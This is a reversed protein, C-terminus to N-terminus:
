RDGPLSGSYGFCRGVPGSSSSTVSVGPTIADAESRAASTTLSMDSRGVMPITLASASAAALANASDGWSWAPRQRARRPPAQIALEGCVNDPAAGIAREDVAVVLEMWDWARKWCSGLRGAAAVSVFTSVHDGPPRSTFALSANSGCPAFGPVEGPAPGVRDVALAVVVAADDFGTPDDPHEGAHAEDPERCRGPAEELTWISSGQREASEQDHPHRRPEVEGAPPPPSSDAM